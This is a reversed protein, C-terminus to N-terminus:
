RSGTVNCAEHRRYLRVMESGMQNGLWRAFDAMSTERFRATTGPGGAGTLVAHRQKVGPPLEPFGESDLRITNGGDSPDSDNPNAKSSQLRPADAVRVLEYGEFPRTELRYALHLREVLLNRLMEQVEGQTSHEPVLAQIDYREGSMWDPGSIHDWWVDFAEALIDELSIASFRILRPDSTGPGGRRAGPVHASQARPDSMRMSAVEFKREPSTQGYAACCLFFLIGIFGASSGMAQM